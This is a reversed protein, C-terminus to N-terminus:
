VVRRTMKIKIYNLRRNEVRNCHVFVFYKNLINLDIDLYM